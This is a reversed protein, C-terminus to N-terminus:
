YIESRPLWLQPMEFMVGDWTTPCNTEYGDKNSIEGYTVCCFGTDVLCGSMSSPWCPCSREWCKPVEPPPIYLTHSYTYVIDVTDVIDVNYCM